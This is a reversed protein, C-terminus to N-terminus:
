MCQVTLSVNATINRQQSSVTCVYVGTDERHAGTVILEVIVRTVNNQISSNSMTTSIRDSFVGSLNRWQVTPPPHGVGVCKITATHGEVVRRSSKIPLIVASDAYINIYLLVFVHLM